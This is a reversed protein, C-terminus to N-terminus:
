FPGLGLEKVDFCRRLIRHPGKYYNRQLKRGYTPNIEICVLEVNKTMGGVFILVVIGSANGIGRRMPRIHARTGAM